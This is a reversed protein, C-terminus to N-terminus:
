RTGQQRGTYVGRCPSTTQQLKMKSAQSFLGGSYLSCVALCHWLLGRQRPDAETPELPRCARFLKLMTSPVRELPDQFGSLSQRPPGLVTSHSGLIQFQITEAMRRTARLASHLLTVDVPGGGYTFEGHTTKFVVSFDRM